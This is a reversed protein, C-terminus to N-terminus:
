PNGSQLAITQQETRRLLVSPVRFISCSNTLVDCSFSAAKEPNDGRGYQRLRWHLAAKSRKRTRGPKQDHPEDGLCCGRLLRSANELDGMAVTRRARRRELLHRELGDGRRRRHEIIENDEVPM